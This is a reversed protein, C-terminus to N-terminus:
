RVMNSAMGDLGQGGGRGGGPADDVEEALSSTANIVARSIFGMREAITPNDLPNHRNVHAKTHMILAAKRYQKHLRYYNYLQDETEVGGRIFFEEM